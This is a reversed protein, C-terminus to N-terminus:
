EEHSWAATWDPLYQAYMIAIGPKLACLRNEAQRILYKLFVVECNETSYIRFPIVRSLGLLVNM